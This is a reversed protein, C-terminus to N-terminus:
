CAFESTRFARQLCPCFNFIQRSSNKLKITAATWLTQAFVRFSLIEETAFRWFDSECSCCRKCGILVVNIKPLLNQSVQWCDRPIRLCFCLQKLKGDGEVKNIKTRMVYKTQRRIRTVRHPHECSWKVQCLYSLPLSSCLRLPLFKDRTTDVLFSSLGLNDVTFIAVLLNSDSATTQM